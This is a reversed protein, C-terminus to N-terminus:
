KASYAGSVLKRLGQVGKWVSTLGTTSEDAFPDAGDTAGGPQSQMSVTLGSGLGQANEATIEWRAEVNGSRAESETAFRALLKEPAAGPKVTLDGVQWFIMNKERSFTGVPKSQCATAKAGELTLALMLGAVTISERGHLNFSPNLSYSVIISAQNPEIRFAPTLLLPAQSGADDTRVQYKFAVQTKAINTLNVSYEGERNPTHTLFAPNPAVKELSSFNELRINESGFPSSLDVPNYALAVEGILSSSIIKGNEFRASVTEVISSNLGTDNMEPHKMGQSATSTLSRGSRISGTDAAHENAIAARSDPRFPSQQSMTSAFPSFTSAAVAGPAFAGSLSQALSPAFSASPSSMAPPQSPSPLVERSEEITPQAPTQFSPPLTMSPSPEPTQQEPAPVYTSAISSVPRGQRRGRVTGVRGIASPPAQQKQMTLIIDSSLRACVVLSVLKNAVSALAAESDAGEEQIPANRINVNFAPAVGEGAAAADAQAQSIPDLNSPPVSFGEDDRQVEAAPTEARPEPQNPKPPELDALDGQHSGNPIPAIMPPVERTASSTGNVHPTPAHQRDPTPSSPTQRSAAPEMMESGLRLPSRPRERSPTEQPPELSPTDRSRGLRNSFSNFPSARSKREPSEAMPELTAPQKSERKRGGVVTGLRKLGSFRSKKKDEQVSGSRTSEDDPQSITPTLTSSSPPARSPTPVSPRQPREIRPKGQVAKLAFTKIEDETQLSLLVNLCHEATTQSKQVMDVEHTQFQTLVDRLLNLRSEDVAQLSEFVYPAQSEWQSHANDLESNASAVKSAESREGRGRLKETKQQAREVDKAMASLNGQITTMAQMERNSSAFDRLPREVDVEIKSALASHSDAMTDAAGTM